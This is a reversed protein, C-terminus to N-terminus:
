IRELLEKQSLRKLEQASVVPLDFNSEGIIFSKAELAQSFRNVVEIKKEILDDEVIALILEKGRAIVDFPAGMPAESDMGMKKLEVSFLNDPLTAYKSEPQTFIDASLLFVLREAISLSPSAEGSEYRRVMESSVGLQEGLSKLSLGIGLRAEKLKVPDVHAKLGGKEAQVVLSSSIFDELSEPHIVSVEHRQFILGNELRKKGYRESIIVPKAGAIRSVASLRDIDQSLMKQADKMLKVFFIETDVVCADITNPMIDCIVKEAPLKGLLEKLM